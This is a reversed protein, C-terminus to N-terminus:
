CGKKKGGSKKTGMKKGSQLQPFTGGTQSM